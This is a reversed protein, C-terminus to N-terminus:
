YTKDQAPKYKTDCFVLFPIKPSNSKPSKEPTRLFRLMVPQNYDSPVIELSMVWNYSITRKVMFDFDFDKM